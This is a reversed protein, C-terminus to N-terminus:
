NKKFLSRLITRTERTSVLCISLWLIGFIYGGIVDVFTHVGLFVRSLGVLLIIITNFFIFGRQQLKNEMRDKFLLLLFAYFIVAQMAHGSPFGYGGITILTDAPRPVKFSHKLLYNLIQGGLLACWLVAVTKVKQRFLLYVSIVLAVPFVLYSSGLLSISKWLM